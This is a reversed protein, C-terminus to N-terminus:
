EVQIFLPFSTARGFNGTPIYEAQVQHSGLALNNTTYFASGVTLVVTSTVPEFDKRFNIWGTPVAGTSATVTANFTINSSLLGSNDSTATLTIMTFVLVQVTASESSPPFPPSGLYNATIKHFGTTAFTKSFSAFGTFPTTNLITAGEKFQLSGSPTGLSSDVNSYMNVSMTTFAPNQSFQLTTVTYNAAPTVTITLPPSVSDQFNGTGHFEAIIQHIQVSLSSVTLTAVKNVVAVSSLPSGFFDRFIIVGTPGAANVTATLNISDGYISTTSTSTLNVTTPVYIFIGKIDQSPPFIGFGAYSATITRLGATGWQKDFTAQGNVLVVTKLVTVGDKFTVNGTPIGQSNTVTAILTVIDALTAPNQSFTLTTADPPKVINV